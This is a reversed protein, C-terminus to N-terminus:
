DSNHNGRPLVGVLFRELWNNVFRLDSRWLHECRVKFHFCYDLYCMFDLPQSGEYLIRAKQVSKLELEPLNRVLECQSGFHHVHFM